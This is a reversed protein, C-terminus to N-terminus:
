TRKTPLLGGTQPPKTREFLAVKKKSRAGLAQEPAPRGIVNQYFWSSKILGHVNDKGELKLAESHPSLLSGRLLKVGELIELEGPADVLFAYVIHDGLDGDAVQFQRTGSVLDPATIRRAKVCLDLFTQHNGRDRMTMFHRLESALGHNSIRLQVNTGGSNVWAYFFNNRGVQLTPASPPEYVSRRALLWPCSTITVIYLPGGICQTTWSIGSELSQTAGRFSSTQFWKDVDGHTYSEGNPSVQRTMGDNKSFDLEGYLKGTQDPSFNVLAVIRSNQNKDMLENIEYMSYYYLTHIMLFTNYMGSTIDRMGGETWREGGERTRQPGWKTVRRVADASTNLQVQTAIIPPQPLHPRKLVRSSQFRNFAENSTPNGGIDLVFEGPRLMNQIRRTGV